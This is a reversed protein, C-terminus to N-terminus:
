GGYALVAVCPAGPTIYTLTAKKVPEANSITKETREM